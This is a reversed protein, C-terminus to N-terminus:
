QHDVSGDDHDPDEHGVSSESGVGPKPGGGNPAALLIPDVWAGFPPALRVLIADVVLGILQLASGEEYPCHTPQFTRM